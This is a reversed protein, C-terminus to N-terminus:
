AETTGAEAHLCLYFSYVVIFNDKEIYISSVEQSSLVNTKLSIKLAPGESSTNASTERDIDNKSKDNEKVDSESQLSVSRNRV